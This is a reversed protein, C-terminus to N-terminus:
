GEAVGLSHSIRALLDTALNGMLYSTTSFCSILLSLNHGCIVQLTCLPTHAKVLSLGPSMVKVSYGAIPCASM